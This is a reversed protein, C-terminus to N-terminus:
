LGKMVSSLWAFLADLGYFYLGFIVIFAVVAISYKIMEQKTPWKVKKLEAKVEQSYSKQNVKKETKKTTKKKVKAAEKSTKNGKVIKNDKKPKTTKKLNTLTEEKEM